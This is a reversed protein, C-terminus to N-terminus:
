PNELALNLLQKATFSKFDRLVDSMEGETRSTVIVIHSTM